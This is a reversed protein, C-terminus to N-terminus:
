DDDLLQQFTAARLADNGAFQHDSAFVDESIVVEYGYDNIISIAAKLDEPSVKRAPATIGIKDGSKLSPPRKM